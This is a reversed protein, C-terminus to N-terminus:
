CFYSCSRQTCPTKFQFLDKFYFILLFNSWTIKQDERMDVRTSNMYDMSRISKRNSEIGDHLDHINKQIWGIPM